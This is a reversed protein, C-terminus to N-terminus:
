YVALDELNLMKMLLVCSSSPLTVLCPIFIPTLFSLMSSYQLIEGLFTLLSFIMHHLSAPTWSPNGDTDLVSQCPLQSLYIVQISLLTFKERWQIWRPEHEHWFLPFILWKHLIWVLTTLPFYTRLRAAKTCPMYSFIPAMRINGYVTNSQGVYLRLTTIPFM